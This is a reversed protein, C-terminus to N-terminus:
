LQTAKREARIKKLLARADISMKEAACPEKDLEEWHDIVPVTQEDAASLFSTSMPSSITQLSDNRPPPPQMEDDDFPNQQENKISTSGSRGMKPDEEMEESISDFDDDDQLIQM